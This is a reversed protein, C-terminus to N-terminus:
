KIGVLISNPCPLAENIPRWLHLTHKHNNVYESKPPHFQIVCDEEDWFIDKIKCMESWTPTREQSNIKTKPLKLDVIHVSVHEWGEGDSAIINAFVTHSLNIIFCGNNGFSSDSNMLHNSSRTIRYKEQVHFM